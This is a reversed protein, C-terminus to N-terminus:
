LEEDAERLARISRLLDRSLSAVESVMTVDSEQVMTVDSEHAVSLRHTMGRALQLKDTAQGVAKRFAKIPVDTLLAADNLRSGKKLAERAEPHSVVAALEGLNRSEGLVTHGDGRRQFMWEMLDRLHEDNVTGGNGNGIELFESIRGYSLATTLVAFQIADETVGELGFFGRETVYDYIRLGSLLRDVYDSRSGILRALRQHSIDEGRDTARRRLQQVYRAKALPDWEQIGTVHRYGLYDLIEERAPFAITPLTEPKYPADDALAQVALKRVPAREPELLLLVAALRRNGEVVIYSSGDSAPAVLLPEGPFYGQAAISGMLELLSEGNLMWAFVAREDTGDVSRPLRPNAPDFRLEGVPRDTVVRSGSSPASSSVM